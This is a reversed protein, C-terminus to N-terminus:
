EAKELVNRRLTAVKDQCVEDLEIQGFETKHDGQFQEQPQWRIEPGPDGAHDIGKSMRM